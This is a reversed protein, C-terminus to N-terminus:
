THLIPKQKKQAAKLWSAVPPLETVESESVIDLFIPKDSSFAMDLGDTLADPDSISMAKLGFGEAVKSPNSNSFDVSYYKGKAHLAQLAKIWGFCENNFHILIAPINLRVLTEMEGASMGLSGDGFLGILKAEPRAFHAGVLAPIAYGLGGYARPIIFIGEEDLKLFRTIYPTPTGADAIVVVPSTIRKNLEAIVRQPKLPVTNSSLEEKTNCWFKKRVSNLDDIWDSPERSINEIKLLAILDRLTLRADGAISISNKYNNSLLEPDLDIQIITQGSDRSPLTWKITSVSGMKCGIYLLVDGEKVAKHAHPHFGNDGIVGLALLENDPMIGQGSITTVVPAMLIQSLEAIENKAQSHKTGGGAIIVPKQAGILLKVAAELTKRSGRTRYAPYSQCDKESYIENVGKTFEEVVVEQPLALHVAGPRGSTAVRFARRIVEPLQNVTKVQASWKTIPEFLKQCNLETITKKGEGSLPIDSTMLIVPISSADAEAIGPIAYLPGAGSPCECIGPKHSIRAYADAMFSASREDRAMVHIIDKKADHLAEYFQISTDGPVGFIVEVNYEKLLKVLVKAGNM